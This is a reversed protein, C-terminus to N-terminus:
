VFTLQSVSTMRFRYFIRYHIMFHERFCVLIVKGILFIFLCTPPHSSGIDSVLVIIHNRNSVYINLLSMAICCLSKFMVHEDTLLKSCNYSVNCIDICRNKKILKGIFSCILNTYLLKAARKM